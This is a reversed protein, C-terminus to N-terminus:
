VEIRLLLQGEDIRQPPEAVIEAVRGSEPCELPIEMKMSEIILLEQDREVSDGVAVLLEKLTGAMPSPVDVIPM